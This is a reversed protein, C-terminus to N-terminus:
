RLLQGAKRLTGRAKSLLSTTLTYRPLKVPAAAIKAYQDLYLQKLGAMEYHQLAVQRGREAMARWQERSTDRLVATLAGPTQMNIFVGEQVIGRQNPHETCVVPLGMAMAEIYVIGFTEFLSGLTFVNAAAYAEPLRDHPMTTFVIRGPMLSQGLAKIAASDESEQGVIVLWAGPVAAVERIVHDMRKHWYCITGVSIVVFADDRIGHEGRFNTAIGPQFRKTDVGHPIMFAKHRASRTLNFDTHEQVFDCAPIEAAPLAGGNSWLIKPTKTFLHRHAYLVNCVEQELCHIVDFDGQLLPLLAGFAFTEGEVRMQEVAVAAAHWKPSVPLRLDKLNPLNRPVHPVLIELDSPPGGGKFLTIDLDRKLLEFLERAFVEHGRHVHGLGSCLLAIRPLPFASQIMQNKTEAASLCQCEGVSGCPTDLRAKPKASHSCNYLTM